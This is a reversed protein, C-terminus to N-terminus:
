LATHDYSQEFLTEEESSLEVKMSGLVRETLNSLFVTSFSIPVTGLTEECGPDIREIHTIYEQAFAPEFTIHIAIDCVPADGDNLVRVERVVPAHNQQMAFNVLPTYIIDVKLGM